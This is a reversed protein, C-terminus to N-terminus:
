IGYVIYLDMQKVGYKRNEKFDKVEKLYKLYKTKIHQISYM